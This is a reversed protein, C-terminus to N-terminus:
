SPPATWCEDSLRARHGEIIVGSPERVSHASIQRTRRRDAYPDQAPEQDLSRGGGQRNTTLLGREHERPEDQIPGRDELAVLEDVQEPGVPHRGM